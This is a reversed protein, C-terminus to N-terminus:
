FNGGDTLTIITEIADAVFEEQAANYYLVSRDVRQATDVDALEGLATASGGPPGQPGATTIAVVTTDGEVVTVTNTVATVNVSTM